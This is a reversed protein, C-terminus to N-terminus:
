GLPSRPHSSSRAFLLRLINSPTVVYSESSKSAKVSENLDYLLEQVRTYTFPDTYRKQLLLQRPARRPHAAVTPIEVLPAEATATAETHGEAEDAHEEVSSDVNEALQGGFFRSKVRIKVSLKILVNKGHKEAEKVMEQNEEM